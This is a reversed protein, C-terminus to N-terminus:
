HIKLELDDLRESTRQYSARIEDNIQDVIKENGEETMGMTGILKGQLQAMADVIPINIATMEANSTIVGTHEAIIQSAAEAVASYMKDHIKAFDLKDAFAKADKMQKDTLGM